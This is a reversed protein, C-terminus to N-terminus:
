LLDRFIKISLMVYYGGFFIIRILTYKIKEYVCSSFLVPLLISASLEQFRFYATGYQLFGFPLSIAIFIMSVKHFNNLDKPIFKRFMFYFVIHVAFLYFSLINLINFSSDDGLKPVVLDFLVKHQGQMFLFYSAFIGILFFFLIRKNFRTILPLLVIPALSFHIFAPISYLLLSVLLNYSLVRNLIIFTVGLALSVRIQTYDHLFYFSIFYFIIALGGMRYKIMVSFKLLLAILAVLGYFVPLLKYTITFISRIFDWFPEVSGTREVFIQVYEDVDVGPGALRFTSILAFLSSILVVISINACDRNSIKM